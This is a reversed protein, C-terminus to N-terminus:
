DFSQRRTFHQVLAPLWTLPRKYRKLVSNVKGEVSWSCSGRSVVYHDQLGRSRGWHKQTEVPFLTLLGTPYLMALAVTAETGAVTPDVEKFPLFSGVQQHLM